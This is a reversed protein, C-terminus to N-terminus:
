KVIPADLKGTVRISWGGFEYNPYFFECLTLFIDWMWLNLELFWALVDLRATVDNLENFYIPCFVIWGKHTYTTVTKEAVDEIEIM